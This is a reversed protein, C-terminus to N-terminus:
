PCWWAAGSINKAKKTSCGWSASRRLTPGETPLKVSVSGDCFGVRFAQWLDREELGRSKLYTQPEECEWFRQHYLQALREMLEARNVASPTPKGAFRRLEELAEPFEMKERLQLFSLADGGKKCGFCQWLREAPNISLSAEEEEHLFCRCFYNKGIKKLELGRSQFLAVLDVSAKLADLESRDLLQNM